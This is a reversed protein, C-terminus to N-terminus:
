RAQYFLPCVLAVETEQADTLFLIDLHQDKGFLSAFVASADNVLQRNPKSLTRLCLAVEHAYPNDYTVRCLYAREVTPWRRFADALAAKLEKEPPGDQESVFRISPVNRSEFRKRTKFIGFM